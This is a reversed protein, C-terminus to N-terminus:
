AADKDHSSRNKNSELDKGMRAALMDLYIVNGTKEYAKKLGNKSSFSGNPARFIFTMFIDTGSKVVATGVQILFGLILAGIVAGIFGFSLYSYYVSALWCSGQALWWVFNYLEAVLVRM